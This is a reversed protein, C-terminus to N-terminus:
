FEKKWHETILEKLNKRGRFLLVKVHANKLGTVESIEKIRLDDLYFLSMVAAQDKDLCNVFHSLWKRRDQSALELFPTSSEFHNDTYSEDLEELRIKKLRVRDISTSYAIRLLWSKLKSKEKLRNINKYCKVFVDQAAEEAEERSKIIKFCLTFVASEYRKVLIGFSKVSGNRVIEDIIDEDSRVM